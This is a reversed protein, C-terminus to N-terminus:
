QGILRAYALGEEHTADLKLTRELHHKAKDLEGLALYVKVFGIHVDPLESDQRLAKTMYDLAKTTDGRSLAIEGQYVFFFPNTTNSAEIRALLEDAEKTRGMEQYVRTMNTLLTANDPELGLGHQYTALAEEFRDTRAYSVGLNNWAKVFDPAIRTATELLERARDNDGALLAEGGLNNYYHAAATLDDIPKFGRYAKRRNPLFDFTRLVGDLYMGAVIHGQSVVMGERHNWRQYDTVEVYFPTLGLDRAVGVFLNVFSLCNGSRTAYTEAANKTPALAYKLDLGDFIFENVQNIRRLESNLRPLKDLQGVIDDNLAFPIEVGSAAERGVRSVFQNRLYAVSDFSKNPACGGALWALALAPLLLVNRRRM